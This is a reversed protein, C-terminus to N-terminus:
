QFSGITEMTTGQKPEGFDINYSGLWLVPWGFFPVVISVIPLGWIMSRLGVDWVRLPRLARELDLTQNLQAKLYGPLFFYLSKKM